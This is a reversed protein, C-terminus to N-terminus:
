ARKNLKLIVKEKKFKRKKQNWSWIEVPFEVKFEKFFAIIKKRRASVNASTTLQINKRQRGKIALLDIIGFIDNQKYKIKGPHWVIWCTKELIEIAKKRIVSEKPM